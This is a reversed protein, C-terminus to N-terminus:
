RLLAQTQSFEALGLQDTLSLHQNSIEHSPLLFAVPDTNPCLSRAIFITRGVRLARVILSSALVRHRCAAPLTRFNPFKCFKLRRFLLPCRYSIKGKSECALPLNLFSCFRDVHLFLREAPSCPSRACRIFPFLHDGDPSAAFSTGNREGSSLKQGTEFLIHSIAESRSILM